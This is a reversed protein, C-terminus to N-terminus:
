SETNEETQLAAIFAAIDCELDRRFAEEQARRGAEEIDSQLQIDAFFADMGDLVYGEHRTTPM